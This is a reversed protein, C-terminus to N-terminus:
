GRDAFRLASSRVVRWEHGQPEGCFEAPSPKDNEFTHIKGSGISGVSRWALNGFYAILDPAVGRTEPYLDEARYVKTDIPQGKEDGLVELREILMSRTTEYKDPDILGQPERGKVNLFIRAYDGGEGWATTKAWDVRARALPTAGIPPELLKLYNNQMLWENSASADKWRKLETILLSWYRPIKRYANSCNAPKKTSTDTITAFRMRIDTVRNMNAIPAIWISGFRTTYAISGMEVMM